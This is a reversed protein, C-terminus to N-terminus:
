NSCVHQEKDFLGLIRLNTILLPWLLKLMTKRKTLKLAFDSFPKKRTTKTACVLKLQREYQLFLLPICPLNLKYSSNTSKRKVSRHAHHGTGCHIVRLMTNGLKM